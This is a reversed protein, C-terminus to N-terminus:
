TDFIDIPNKDPSLNLSEVPHFRRLALQDLLASLQRAVPQQLRRNSKKGFAAVVRDARAFDFRFGANIAPEDRVVETRFLGQPLRRDLCQEDILRFIERERLLVGISEIRDVLEGIHNAAEDFVARVAGLQVPDHHLLPLVVIPAERPDDIPVHLRVVRRRFTQVVLDDGFADRRRHIVHVEVVDQHAGGRQHERHRGFTPAQGAPIRAIRRHDGRM